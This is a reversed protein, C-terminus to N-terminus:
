EDTGQLWDCIEETVKYLLLVVDAADICQGENAWLKLAAQLGSICKLLELGTGAQGEEDDSIEQLISVLEELKALLQRKNM